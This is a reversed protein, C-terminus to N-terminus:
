THKTLINNRNQTFSCHFEAGTETWHVNETRILSLRQTESCHSASYFSYKLVKKAINSVQKSIWTNGRSAKESETEAHTHLLNISVRQQSPSVTQTVPSTKGSQSPVRTTIRQEKGTM